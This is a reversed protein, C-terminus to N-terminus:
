QPWIREELSMTYIKSLIFLHLCTIGGKRHVALEKPTLLHSVGKAHLIFCRIDPSGVVIWCVDGNLLQSDLFNSLIDYFLIILSASFFSMQKEMFEM